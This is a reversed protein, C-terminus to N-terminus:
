NTKKIMYLTTLISANVSMKGIIYVPKIKNVEEHQLRSIVMEGLEYDDHGYQWYVCLEELNTLVKLVSKLGQAKSLKRDPKGAEEWLRITILELPYSKQLYEPLFKNAWFKVLRILEKVYSPQEKVFTLQRKVLSASYFQRGANGIELMDRFM